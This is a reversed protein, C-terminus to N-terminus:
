RQAGRWGVLAAGLIPGDSGLGSRRIELDSSYHMTALSRAEKNANAFFEDGYGLAVSGAIYCRNFDLVSSLTGVARGVMEACRLRTADDADKAPRGTMDEIAWGSAEAELCGYSGCSCLRGNPVVNLHGIHGSNGSDGDLLRGDIVLGGGVGTSVVMSAYSHDDIAAGFVGEALALARADGDIHVDVGLVEELRERLPFRRWAPINLPSVTAGAGTMPGACGVGAFEFHKGQAVRDLLGVISEFLGGEQEAVCLRERALVVGASDIVAAEVKTGGIDLALCPAANKAVGVDIV